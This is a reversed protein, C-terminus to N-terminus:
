PMIDFLDLYNNSEVKGNLNYKYFYLRCMDKQEPKTNPMPIEHPNKFFYPRNIGDYIIIATDLNKQHLYGCKLCSKSVKQIYEQKWESRRSLGDFDSQQKLLNSKYKQVSTWGPLVKNSCYKWYEQTVEQNYASQVGGIRDPEPYVTVTEKYWFKSISGTDPLTLLDFGPALDIINNM